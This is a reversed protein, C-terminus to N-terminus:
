ADLGQQSMDVVIRGDGGHFGRQRLGGGGVPGRDQASIIGDPGFLHGSPALDPGKRSQREGSQRSYGRGFSAATKRRREKNGFMTRGGSWRGPGTPVSTEIALVREALLFVRSIACRVLILWCRREI